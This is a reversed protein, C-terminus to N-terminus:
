SEYYYNARRGFLLKRLVRRSRESRRLPGLVASAADFAAVKAGDLSRHVGPAAQALGVKRLAANMFRIKNLREISPTKFTIAMSVSVREGNRVWHPWMYPLFLGDGEAMAFVRARAEFADCYRQNRHKSPSIEMDQESVLARDANDFVHMEKDGRIQVFFNHEADVHFPTVSHASSVFVFGRVDVMPECAGGPVAAAESLCAEIVARYRPDEEVNKLVMWANNHEIQRITEEASTALKGVTAPDQDPALDGSSYEIRDRDLRGALDVLAALSFLPDGALAHRIAFPREPFDRRMTAPDLILRNSM